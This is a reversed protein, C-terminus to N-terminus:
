RRDEESCGAAWRMFLLGSLDDNVTLSICDSDEEKLLFPETMKFTMSVWSNTGDSGYGVVESGPFQIIDILQKVTGGFVSEGDNIVKLTIGIPLKSVGLLSDYSLYPMTADDLTGAIDDAITVKITRVWLWKGKSPAIKFEIPATGQDIGFCDIYYKPSKDEDSIIEIHFSDLTGEAIDMDTLSIRLQHWTDHVAWDFYDELFVANGVIQATVTNYAHISISDGAKWDKDVYIYMSLSTNDSILTTVGSTSLFQMVDGIDANDTKVSLSGNVFQDASNFTFKGGAVSSATWYANDTGDHIPETVGSSADVNMDIGGGTSSFFFEVSNARTQYPIEYVVVGEKYGSHTHTRAKAKLDSPDAIHVTQAGWATTTLAVSILILLLRIM